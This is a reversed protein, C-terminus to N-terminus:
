EVKSLADTVAEKMANSTITAGSVGDVAAVDDATECGVFAAPMSDIPGTGIGDTEKHSIVEVKAIKGADVTVKVTLPGGM